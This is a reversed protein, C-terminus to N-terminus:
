RVGIVGGMGDWLGVGVGVIMVIVLVRCGLRVWFKWILGSCRCSLIFCM